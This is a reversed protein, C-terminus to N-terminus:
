RCISLMELTRPTLQLAKAEEYTKWEVSETDELARPEGSLHAAEFVLYLMTKGPRQVINNSILGVSKVEIGVEEMFERLLATELTEDTKEVTGGPIGWYGPFVTEDASRKILLFRGDDKKVVASVNVKLLNDM